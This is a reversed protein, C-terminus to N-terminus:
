VKPEQQARIATAIGLCLATENQGPMGLWQKGEDEAIKADREIQKRRESLLLEALASIVDDAKCRAEHRKTGISHGYKCNARWFAERDYPKRAFCNLWQETDADFVEPDIIRAIRDRMEPIDTM